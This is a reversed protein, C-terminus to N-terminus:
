SYKPPRESHDTCPSDPSSNAWQGGYDVPQAHFWSLAELLPISTQPPIPSARLIFPFDGFTTHANPLPDDTHLSQFGACFSRGSSPQRCIRPWSDALSHVLPTQHLTKFILVATGWKDIKTKLSM